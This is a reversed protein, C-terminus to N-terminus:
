DKEVIQSAIMDAIHALKVMSHQNCTDEYKQRMAKINSLIEDATMGSANRPPNLRWDYLGMHWEIAAKEADSLPLFASIRKVSLEGHESDNTVDSLRNKNWKFKGSAKDYVYADMKCVDHFLGIVACSEISDGGYSAALKIMQEAVNISHELLGGAYALHWKTSAPANFFGNDHLYSLFQATRMAGFRDVIRRVLANCRTRLDDNAIDDIISEIREDFVTKRGIRMNNEVVDGNCVFSQVINVNVNTSVNVSNIVNGYKM